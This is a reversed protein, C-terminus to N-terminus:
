FDSGYMHMKATDGCRCRCYLLVVSNYCEPLVYCFDYCREFGVTHVWVWLDDSVRFQLECGCRRILSFMM